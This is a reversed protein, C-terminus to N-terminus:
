YSSSAAAPKDPKDPKDADTASSTPAIWATRWTAANAPDVLTLHARYSMEGGSLKAQVAYTKGGEVTLHLPEDQNFGSTLTATGAPRDWVLYGDLGVTGIAKGDDSIDIPEPFGQMPDERGVYIRARDAAPPTGLDPVPVQMRGNTCGALLALAPLLLPTLRM